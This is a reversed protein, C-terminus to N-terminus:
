VSVKKSREDCTVYLGIAGIDLVVCWILDALVLQNDLGLTIIFFILMLNGMGMMGWAITGTSDLVKKVVPEM